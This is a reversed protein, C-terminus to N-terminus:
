LRPHLVALRKGVADPLVLVLEHVRQLFFQRLLERAALRERANHLGDGLAHVDRLGACRAEDHRLACEERRCSLALRHFRKIDLLEFEDGRKIVARALFAARHIALMEREFVEFDSLVRRREM